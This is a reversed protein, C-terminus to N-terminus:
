TRLVNKILFGASKGVLHPRQIDTTRIVQIKGGQEEYKDVFLGGKRRVTYGYAPEYISGKKAGNGKPVYALVISNSWIDKLEGNEEHVAEGIVVKEVNILKAFISEDVLAVQVNKIKELVKPHEKLIAWVDAAIVCVNPKRGINRKVANIANGFITFVDANDDSFQSSGSLIIKNSTDYNAEDQAIDAIKKERGLAIVDQTTNVAYHQLSFFAENEERYDIPFEVDNEDLTVDISGVDEPDLRNSKGRLERVTSTLRFALRGFTPIKGAEKDIEVVPMLHEGILDLNHYGQALETLVPDQVRLKALNYAKNQQTM